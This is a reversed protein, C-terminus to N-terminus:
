CRIDAKYKFGYLRYRYCPTEGYVVILRKHGIKGALVEIEKKIEKL